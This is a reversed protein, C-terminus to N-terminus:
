QVKVGLVNALAFKRVLSDKDIGSMLLANKKDIRQAVYHRVYWHEDNMMQHLHSTSIRQAVIARVMYDKDYMLQPLYSTDIYKAVVLRIDGDENNINEVYWEQSYKM